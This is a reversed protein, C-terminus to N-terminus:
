SPKMGSIQQTFRTGNYVAQRDENSMNHVYQGSSKVGGALPNPADNFTKQNQMTEALKQALEQEPSMGKDRMGMAEAVNACLQGYQENTQYMNKMAVVKKGQQFASSNELIRYTNLVPFDNTFEDSNLTYHTQENGYDYYKEDPTIKEVQFGVCPVVDFNPQFAMEHLPTTSNSM